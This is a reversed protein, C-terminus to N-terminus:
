KNPWFGLTKVTGENKLYNNVETRTPYKSDDGTIVFLSNNSIKKNYTSIGIRPTEFVGTGVYLVSYMETTLIDIAPFPLYDHFSGRVGDSYVIIDVGTDEIKNFPITPKEKDFDNMNIDEKACYLRCCLYEELVEDGNNETEMKQQELM